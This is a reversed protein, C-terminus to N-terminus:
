RGMQVARLKGPQKKPLHALENLGLPLRAAAPGFMMKRTDFASPPEPSAFSAAGGFPTLQAIFEPLTLEKPLPLEKYLDAGMERAAAGFGKGEAMARGGAASLGFPLMYPGAAFPAMTKVPGPLKGLPGREATAAGWGAGGLLALGSLVRIRRMTDPDFNQMSRVAPLDQILPTRELGREVVNTPVKTVPDILTGLMTNGLGTLGRGSRSLPQNTFTRIKRALPDSEGARALIDQTGATLGSMASTFPERLRELPAGESTGVPSWDHGGMFGERIAEGTRPAFTERMIGPALDPRELATTALVGLDSLAKKPLAAHSFLNSARVKGFIAKTMAPNRWMGVGGLGLLGGGVAGLTRNTPEAAAGAMAGSAGGMLYYLLEPDIEGSENGLMGSADGGKRAIIDAIHADLGKRVGRERSMLQRPGAAALVDTALDETSPIVGNAAPDASIRQAVDQQVGELKSRLEPPLLDLATGPKIDELESTDAIRGVWDPKNFMASLEAQANAHRQALPEGTLFDRLPEPPAPPAAGAAAPPENAGFNFSTDGGEPPHMADAAGPWWAGGKRLDFLNAAAGTVDPPPAPPAGFRTGGAANRIAELLDAPGAFKNAFRPDQNLAELITDVPHGGDRRVVGNAGPVGASARFTSPLREGARPGTRITGGTGKAMDAFLSELEGRMGTEPAIGLGGAKAIAQLLGLPDDGGEATGEVGADRIDTAAETARGMRERFADALEDDTGTFGNARADAALEQFHPLQEPPLSKVGGAALPEPLGNPYLQRLIDDTSRSGLPELAPPLGPLGRPAGAPVPSSEPWANAPLGGEPGFASTQAFTAPLQRTGQPPPHPAGVDFAGPPVAGSSPGIPLQGGGGPLNWDHTSEAAEVAPPMDSVPDPTKPMTEGGGLFRSVVDAADFPEASSRMRIPIASPPQRTIGTIQEHATPTGSTPGEWPEPNNFEIPNTIRPPPRRWPQTPEPIPENTWPAPGAPPTPTSPLARVPGTPPQGGSMRSVQAPDLGTLQARSGMRPTEPSPVTTTAAKGVDPPQWQLDLPNPAERAWFPKSALSPPGGVPGMAGAAHLGRAGLYGQLLGLGAEGVGGAREWAGQTPDTATAIGHSVQPVSALAMAGHVVPQLAETGSGLMLLNAPSLQRSAGQIAGAAFGKLPDLIQHGFGQGTAHENLWNAFTDAPKTIFDPADLFGHWLKSALGEDAPPAPGNPPATGLIRDLTPDPVHSSAPLNGTPGGPGAASRGFLADLYPDQPM